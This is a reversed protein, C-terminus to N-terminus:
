SRRDFLALYATGQEMIRDAQRGLPSWSELAAGKQHDSEVWLRGKFWDQGLLREKLVDRYLQHNEYPPDFFITQASAEEQNLNQYNLRYHDLFRLVDSSVLQIQKSSEKLRESIKAINKELSRLARKDNEVLVVRDAGRSLAELGMAGTGACLDIFVEESWDQHADFFRRRLRVATPRLLPSDWVDLPLGKSAGGLIAIAM